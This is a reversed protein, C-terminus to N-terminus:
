LRMIKNLYDTKLMDMFSLNRTLNNSFFRIPSILTSGNNSVVKMTFMRNSYKCNGFKTYKHVRDFAGIIFTM